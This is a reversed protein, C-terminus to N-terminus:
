SAALEDELLRRESLDAYEGGLQILEEHAGREVIQEHGLV